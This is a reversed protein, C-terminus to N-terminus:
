EINQIQERIKEIETKINVVSNIIDLEGAKSGITNIERNMEQVIFDLKKGSSVRDNITKSFEDLHSKLRIIEEDISSKDAIIAVETMIRNEDLSVDGALDKIRQYLKSKNVLTIDKSIFEIEDVMKIIINTKSVIDSFLRKGERERMQSFSELAEKLAKELVGWVVDEDKDAKEVRIVDPFRTILSLTVKDEICLEEKISNFCKMYAKALYKDLEINVDQEFADFNIFIDVKGRSIYFSALKRVKEELSSFSRPMKIYFDNYRHNVSKIEVTFRLGDEEHEGKGYGTM